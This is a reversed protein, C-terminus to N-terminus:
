LLHFAVLHLLLVELASQMSSLSEFEVFGFCFGQKNSRVQIGDQKIPGFKKFEEELQPVTASLPLHRVYISFGEENINSSEPASDSTPTLAEPALASKASGALRQDINAPAARVISAAFVPTSTASGKMVKVISAYSKKPADEQAAPASDVVTSIENESSISPPEVVAEEEIVSGEENDSPDCVEAVNNLDEEEEFSPTAPDVVLHDPVHNAEPDPTLAATPATENIGDVSVFNEQLSKKEEIYTFIDNLVFYGNDQPALFFSQGFKRKVNDKLTVSGTVLVTVGEKYSDQADATEIEMKYEGYHFSMIKDNIAQYNLPGFSGHHLKHLVINFGVASAQLTTVTTMSGSSDPRSLVSSDQYFKYLLEPNQHLIPYYQDVFANGVFAASHLPAPTAEQMAM